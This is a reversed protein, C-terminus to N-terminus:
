NFFIQTFSSSRQLNLSLCKKRDRKKQQRQQRKKEVRSETKTKRKRLIAPGPNSRTPPPKPPIEPDLWIMDKIQDNWRSEGNDTKLCKKKNNNNHTSDRESWGMTLKDYIGKRKKKKFTHSSLSQNREVQWEFGCHFWRMPQKKRGAAKTAGTNFYHFTNWKTKGKVLFGIQILLMAPQWIM